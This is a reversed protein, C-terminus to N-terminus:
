AVTRAMRRRTSYYLALLNYVMHFLYTFPFILLLTAGLFTHFFVAGDILHLRAIIDTYIILFIVSRVVMRDQKLIGNSRIGKTAADIDHLIAAAGRKKVTSYVMFLNGVVAFLLAIGTITMVLGSLPGFLFNAQLSESSGFVIAALNGPAYNHSQEAHAAVDPVTTGLLIHFFLIVAAIGYTAAKTIIAVHYLMYGKNWTPNVKNYFHKVPDFLVSKVASVADLENPGGEFDQTVGRYKRKLTATKFWRGLNLTVGVAFVVVAIFVYINLLALM